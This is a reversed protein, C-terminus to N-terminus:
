ILVVVWLKASEWLFLGRLETKLELFSLDSLVMLVSQCKLMCVPWVGHRKFIIMMLNDKKNASLSTLSGTLYIETVCGMFSFYSDKLIPIQAILRKM